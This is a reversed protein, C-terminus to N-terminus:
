RPWKEKRLENWYMEELMDCSPQPGFKPLDSYCHDVAQELSQLTSKKTKPSPVITYTIKDVVDCTQPELWYVFCSGTKSSCTGISGSRNKANSLPGHEAQYRLDDCIKVEDTTLPDQGIKSIHQYEPLTTSQSIVEPSTRAEMMSYQETTSCGVILSVFVILVLCKMSNTIVFRM